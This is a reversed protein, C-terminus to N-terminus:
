IIRVCAKPTCPRSLGARGLQDIFYAYVVPPTSVYFIRNGCLNHSADLETLRQSLRSYAEQDGYDGASYFLNAAFENWKAPDVPGGESITKAAEGATTRFSEDTMPTRAFGVISYRSGLSDHAALDFLAPIVKRKALDGSAGFLVIACPDSAGGYTSSTSISEAAM